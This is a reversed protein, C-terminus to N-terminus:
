HAHDRLWAGDITQGGNLFVLDNIHKEGYSGAIAIMGDGPSISVDALEVPLRLYPCDIRNKGDVTVIIDATAFGGGYGRGTAPYVRISTEVSHAGIMERRRFERVSEGAVLIVGQHDHLALRSLMANQTAPDHVFGTTLRVQGTGALVRYEILSLTVDAPQGAPLLWTLAAAILIRSKM